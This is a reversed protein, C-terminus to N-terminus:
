YNGLYQKSDCMDIINFDIYILQIKTSYITSFRRFGTDESDQIEQIRYRRFGTDGSDQIEQIRYR